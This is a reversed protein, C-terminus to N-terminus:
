KNLINKKQIKSIEQLNNVNGPIRFVDYHRIIVMVFQDLEVIEISVHFTKSVSKHLVLTIEQQFTKNAKGKKKKFKFFEIHKWM